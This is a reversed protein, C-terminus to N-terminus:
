KNYTIPESLCQLDGKWIGPTNKPTGPYTKTALTIALRYTGPPLGNSKSYGNSTEVTGTDMHTRLWLLIERPALTARGGLGLGLNSTSGPVVADYRKGDTSVYRIGTVYEIRAKVPSNTVDVSINKALDDTPPCVELPSSGVNQVYVLVQRYNGPGLVLGMRLGNSPQGWLIPQDWPLEQLVEELFREPVWWSGETLAHVKWREGECHIRVGDDTKNLTVRCEVRQKQTYGEVIAMASVSYEALRSPDVYRTEKRETYSECGRELYSGKKWAPCEPALRQIKREVITNVRDFDVGVTADRLTAGERYYSAVLAALGLLLAAAVCALLM